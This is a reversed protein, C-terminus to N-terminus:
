DSLAPFIRVLKLLLKAVAPHHKEFDYLWINVKSERKRSKKNCLAARSWEPLPSLFVLIAVDSLGFAEGAWCGSLLWYYCMSLSHAQKLRFMYQFTRVWHWSSDTRHWRVRYNIIIIIKWNINRIVKWVIFSYCRGVDQLFDECLKCTGQMLHRVHLIEVEPKGVM